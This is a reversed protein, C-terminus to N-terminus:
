KGLICKHVRVHLAVIGRMLVSSESFSHNHHLGAKYLIFHQRLLLYLDVVNKHKFTGLTACKLTAFYHKALFPFLSTNPFTSLEM